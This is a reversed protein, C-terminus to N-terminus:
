RGPATPSSSRTRRMWRDSARAGRPLDRTVGAAIAMRAAEVVDMRTTILNAGLEHCGTAWSAADVPDAFGRAGPPALAMGAEDGGLMATIAASALAQPGGSVGCDLRHGSAASAQAAWRVPTSTVQQPDVGRRASAASFLGGPGALV